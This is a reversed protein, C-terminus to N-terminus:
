IDQTQIAGGIAAVNAIYPRTIQWCIMGDFDYDDNFQDRFIGSFQRTLPFAKGGGEAFLAPHLIGFDTGFSIGQTGELQAIVYHNRRKKGFGPGSRAGSEERSHPRVIQGQSTYTFGVVASPNATFYAATFLGNATGGRIGDGYPVSISGNIVEYDGCDLGALWATVTKGNLHWLGNCILGGYPAPTADYSTSSPVVANDLYAAQFLTSGEDLTDTLLEVHRVNTVPDNSVISLADLNGGVSPGVTISEIVRGSGLDHRHWGAINPGQSTMLTDRKYTCGRLAGTELRAWVIPQLEQQYAIEAVNGITLHKGTTTIDPATFKGSIVDAFYEIIKRKFKQV